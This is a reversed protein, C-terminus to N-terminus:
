MMILIMLLLLIGFIKFHRVQCREMALLEEASGGPM